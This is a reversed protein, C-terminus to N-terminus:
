ESYHEIKNNVTVDTEDTYPKAWTKINKLIAKAKKEAEKKDYMEIVNLNDSLDGDEYINVEVTYSVSGDDEDYEFIAIKVEGEDLYKIAKIFKEKLEKTNLHEIPEKAEPEDKEKELSKFYEKNKIDKPLAVKPPHEKLHKREKEKLEELYKKKDKGAPVKVYTKGSGWCLFCIGKRNYYYQPIFGRGECRPCEVSEKVAM